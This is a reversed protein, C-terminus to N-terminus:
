ANPLQKRYASITHGTYKKFTRLFSTLYDYGCQKALTECNTEGASLLKIAHEMRVRTLYQIYTSGTQKHFVKSIHSETKNLRTSLYSLSLDSTSFEQNIIEIISNTLSIKNTSETLLMHEIKLKQITSMITKKIDNITASHSLSIYINAYENTLIKEYLLNKNAIEIITTLMHLTFRKTIDVSINNELVINFVNDCIRQLQSFDLSTINNINNIIANIPDTPDKSYSIPLEASTSTIFNYQLAYEENDQAYEELLVGNIRQENNSFHFTWDTPKIPSKVQMQFSDKQMTSILFGKSFSNKVPMDPIQNESIHLSFQCIAYQFLSLDIKKSEGKYIVLDFYVANQTESMEITPEFGDIKYFDYRFQLSVDSYTTLLTNGNHINKLNSSNGHIVYRIKLESVNIKGNTNKNDSTHHLGHNTSFSIHGLISNKIQLCFLQSSSFSNGNINCQVEACYSDKNTGFHALLPKFEQWLEKRCFSGITYTPQMYTTAVQPPLFYPYIAGNCILRQSYEMYKENNFFPYFEEPCQIKSNSSKKTVTKHIQQKLTDSLFVATSRSYPGSLQGTPYHYHTSFNEWLIKNLHSATSKISQNKTNNLIHNLTTAMYQFFMPSNFDDIFDGHSLVYNLLKKLKHESYNIFESKSFLEGTMTCTYCESLTIHSNFPTCNRNVIFTSAACCSNEIKILLKKPLINKHHIYIAILSELIFTATNFDPVPMKELSEESYIPWLGYLNKTPSLEQLSLVKNIIGNIKDSFEKTENLLKLAHRISIVLNHAYTHTNYIRTHITNVSKKSVKHAILQETADYYTDSTQKNNTNSM